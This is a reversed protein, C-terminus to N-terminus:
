IMVLYGAVFEVNQKLSRVHLIQAATINVITVSLWTFIAISVFFTIPTIELLKVTSSMTTTVVRSTKQATFNAFNM